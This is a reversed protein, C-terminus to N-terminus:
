RSSASALFAAIQADSALRILRAGAGHAEIAATMRPRALRDWTWIYRLFVPDFHEACGVAMDPRAGRRYRLVRWLARRLCLLRAQDVWVITDARSLSVEAISTYNGDCIWAEAELAVRVRDGFAERESEVWGPRWFLVDLHVVPLGLREGLARALTSKGGGSCGVIM